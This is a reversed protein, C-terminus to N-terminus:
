APLMRTPSAWERVPSGLPPPNEREVEIDPELRPAHEGEEVEVDRHLRIYGNLFCDEKHALRHTRIDMSHTLQPLDRVWVELTHKEIHNADLLIHKVGPRAEGILNERLSIAWSVAEGAKLKPRVCFTGAPARELAEEVDHRMLAFSCILQPPDHDWLRRVGHLATLLESEFWEHFAQWEETPLVQRPEVPAGSEATTPSFGAALLLHRIEMPTLPRVFGAAKYEANIIDSCVSPSFYGDLDGGEASPARRKLETALARTTAAATAAANREAKLSRGDLPRIDQLILLAKDYQSTQRSLIITPLTYLLWLSSGYPLSVCFMIYRKTMRSSAAFKLDSFVIDKSKEEEQFFNPDTDAEMCFKVTGGEPLEEKSSVSPHWLPLNDVQLIWSKPFQQICSM